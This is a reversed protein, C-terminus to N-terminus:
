CSSSLLSSRLSVEKTIIQNHAYLGQAGCRDELASLLKPTSCVIVVKLATAIGM